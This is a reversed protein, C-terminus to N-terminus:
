RLTRSASQFALDAQCCPLRSVVLRSRPISTTRLYSKCSLWLGELDQKLLDEFVDELNNFLAREREIDYYLTGGACAFVARQISVAIGYYAFVFAYDPVCM